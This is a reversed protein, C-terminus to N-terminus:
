LQHGAPVAIAGANQANKVKVVFGCTGRDVLAINGAVATANTLPSCADFTSPGAADAPDLAQVVTGTVGSSNLQPGFSAAGVDYNGQIAPPSNVKLLPTGPALVGPVANTVHSGVWVVKRTNIASAARETDTMQDWTKSLSKDLL